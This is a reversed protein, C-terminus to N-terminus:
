TQRRNTKQQHEKPRKTKQQVETLRRNTMQQDETLSVVQFALFDEFNILKQVIINLAECPDHSYANLLLNIQM